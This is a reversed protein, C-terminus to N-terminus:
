QQGQVFPGVYGGGVSQTNPPRQESSQPSGASYMAQINHGLWAPSGQHQTPPPTTPPARQEAPQVNITNTGPSNWLQNSPYPQQPKMQMQGPTQAYMPQPSVLNQYQYFQQLGPDPVQNVPYPQQHFGQQSSPVHHQQFGQSPPVHQTQFVQQPQPQAQSKYVFADQKSKFAGGMNVVNGGEDVWIARLKSEKARTTSTSGYLSNMYQAFELYAKQVTQFHSLKLHVLANPKLVSEHSNGQAEFEALALATQCANRIQRGNWRAQPHSTYHDLAFAAVDDIVITRQKDDFREKIMDVNIKFVQLTKEKSLEPYYLSVHIRSTFAEDFDGVRNTTLFLVGAYYELVRLFVAVLGNRKFDEKNRQALFVDAEDLLLICDWRNALTFNIDLAKEVEKATSGLDCTLQADLPCLEFIGKGKVIDVQETQGTKSEKDRFHQAILAQIMPKQGDELVLRGFATKDEPLEKTKKDEEDVKALVKPPHLETLYSLDLQAWQRSRLVFGFVRYSMIIREEDSIAYDNKGPGNRLEGLPQPIIVVSPQESQSGTKPLLGNVYAERAKLDIYSDDHVFENCCAANCPTDEDDTEDPDEPSPNGLLVELKPKWGQQKEDEVAFATEFDIVVQSEVDDRIGLTPGAYYMAKIGVVDLFKSGRSILKKRYREEPPMTELEKWDTDSFEARRIPHFRLPYVPLSNVEIEGDFRKFEFVKSVPGLNTGDFDIYVCTTSFPPKKKKDGSSWFWARYAQKGDRGIVVEGPRFLYWLDSFSVRKCKPSNLYAQKASITTDMFDLLIKLHDLAMASRSVDNPDEIDEGEEEDENHNEGDRTIQEFKEELNTRWSRLAEEAFFLAKFPRVLVVALFGLEAVDSAEQGIITALIKRLSASHIRIREPLPALGPALSPAAQPYQSPSKHAKRVRRGSRGYWGSGSDENIIPEGVLIDIVCSDREEAATLRKFAFWDVQNLKLQACTPRASQEDQAAKEVEQAKKVDQEMKEEARKRRRIGMEEALFIRDMEWEFNKRLRDRVGGFEIAHDFEDMESAEGPIDSLQYASDFPNPRKYEPISYPMWQYNWPGHMRRADSSLRPVNKVRLDMGFDRPEHADMEWEKRHQYLFREMARYQESDRDLPASQSDQDAPDGTDGSSDRAQKELESIKIKLAELETTLNVPIQDAPRRSESPLPLVPEKPEDGQEAQSPTPPTQVEQSPTSDFTESVM